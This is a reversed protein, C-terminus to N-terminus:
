LQDALAPFEQRLSRRIREVQDPHVGRAAADSLVSRAAAAGQDRAALWALQTWPGVAAADRALARRLWERLPADRVHPERRLSDVLGTYAQVVEGTIAEPEFHWEHLAREAEAERDAALLCMLLLGRFPRVQEAYKQASIVPLAALADRLLPLCREAQRPEALLLYEAQEALAVSYLKPFRTRMPQALPVARAAEDAAAAFDGRLRQAAAALRYTEPAMSLILSDLNTQPSVTAVHGRFGHLAEDFLSNRMLEDLSVLWAGKADGMRLADRLLGVHYGVQGPYRRLALLAEVDYPMTRRQRLWASWAAKRWEDATAPQTPRYIAALVEAARATLTETSSFLPARRNFELAASFAALAARAIEEQQLELEPSLRAPSV